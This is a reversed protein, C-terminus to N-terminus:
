YYVIICGDGGDGGKGGYGGTGGSFATISQGNYGGCGGGGGGCGGMGGYGYYKSNYTTAKPPIYTANGGNGGKANTETSGGNGGRQGLAGGGGCGGFWVYQNNLLAGDYSDGGYYTTDTLFNYADEAEYMTVTAETPNSPNTSTRYGGNGGRGSSASWLPMTGCYTDGNMINTYPKAAGNASSYSGFTSATGASGANNTTNSTCVAGGAGGTGCSYSYTASPSNIEVEYVKGYLGNSGYMGGRAVIASYFGTNANGNQGAYGSSGGTGGGILVVYLKTAGTPVTFTGSGTLVRYNKYTGGIDVPTYNSVFTCETKTKASGVTRAGILYGSSSGGFPAAFTYNRGCMCGGVTIDSKTKYAGSAYYALLKNMVAESNLFTVATASTVSVTGGDPRDSVVEQIVRQSHTYSQAMIIGKGRLVAANENYAVITLESSATPTGYIPANNFVAIYEGSIGVTLANDFVVADQASITGSVPATYTHETLELYHPATVKEVSGRDYTEDQTITKQIESPLKNIILDGTESKLLNLNLAFLIQHLVERKTGVPIWGSVTLSDIGNGWIINKAANILEENNTLYDPMPYGSIYFKDHTTEVDSYGNIDNTFYIDQTATDQYFSLSAYQTLATSSSNGYVHFEFLEFDLGSVTYSKSAGDGFDRVDSCAFYIPVLINTTIPTFEFEYNPNISSGTVRLWGQWPRIIVELEEGYRAKIQTLNSYSSGNVLSCYLNVNIRDDDPDSTSKAVTVGINYSKEVSDITRFAQLFWLPKYWGQVAGYVAFRIGIGNKSGSVDANAGVADNALFFPPITAGSVTRVSSYREYSSKRLGNGLIAEYIASKANTANYIGGYHTEYELLGIISVCSIKFHKVGYREITKFYFKGVFDGNRYAYVPTAYALNQLTSNTDNYYVEFELTDICLEGGIPDTNTNANFSILESTGFQFTPSEVSSVYIYYQDPIVEPAPEESLKDLNLIQSFPNYAKTNNVVIHDDGDYYFSPSTLEDVNIYETDPM